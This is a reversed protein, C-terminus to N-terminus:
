LEKSSREISVIRLIYKGFLLVYYSFVHSHRPNESPPPVFFSASFLSSSNPSPLPHLTSILPCDTAPSQSPVSNFPSVFLDCYLQTPPCWSGQCIRLVRFWSEAIAEKLSTLAMTTCPESRFFMFESCSSSIRCFWLSITNARVEGWCFSMM